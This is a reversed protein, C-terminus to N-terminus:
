ASLAFDEGANDALLADVTDRRRESRTGEDGLATMENRIQEMRHDLRRREATLAENLSRLPLQAPPEAVDREVISQM